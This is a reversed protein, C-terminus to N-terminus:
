RFVNKYIFCPNERGKCEPIENEKVNDCYKFCNYCDYCVKTSSDQKKYKPKKNGTYSIFDDKLSLFGNFARSKYIDVERKGVYFKLDHTNDCHTVGELKIDTYFSGIEIELVNYFQHNKEAVLPVEIKIEMM